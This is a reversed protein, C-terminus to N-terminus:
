RRALEISHRGSRCPADLVRLGPALGVVFDIEASTQSPHVAGRWFNNALDTFFDTYWTL